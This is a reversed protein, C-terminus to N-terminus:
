IWKCLDFDNEDEAQGDMDFDDYMFENEQFDPDQCCDLYYEM